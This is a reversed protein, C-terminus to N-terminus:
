KISFLGEPKNEIQNFRDTCEKIISFAVKVDGWGEVDVVKNELDKYVQFFYEIEKLLHPNIDSLNAL